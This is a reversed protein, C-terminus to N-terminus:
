RPQGRKGRVPRAADSESSTNNPPNPSTTTTHPWGIARAGRVATHLTYRHEPNAPHLGTLAAIRDLRYTVARVSLHLAAATRTTNSGGDLYTALTDLLPQPGGRAHRLPDLVTDILDTLAARDRLLVQYVLLDETRAIPEPLRLTHALALTETAETYSRAVGSPAPHARGVAIRTGPQRGPGSLVVRHLAALAPPVSDPGPTALVVVLRGARTTILPSTPGAPEALAAALEGLLPSAEHFPGPADALVVTHAGALHLGYSEARALLTEPEATGGLLDDVFERRASEERRLLARRTAAYGQALAAVADDSIRLVRQGAARIAAADASNVEPLLPWARWAASLYLDAVASLALGQEAARAGLATFAANAHSDWGPDAGPDALRDLFDGLLRPDLGGADRGAATAM